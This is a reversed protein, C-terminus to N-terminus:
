KRLIGFTNQLLKMTKQEIQITRHPQESPSQPTLSIPIGDSMGMEKGNIVDFLRKM